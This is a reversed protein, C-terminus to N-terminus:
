VHTHFGHHAVAVGGGDDNTAGGEWDGRTALQIRAHRKSSHGQRSLGDIHTDPRGAQPSDEDLEAHGRGNVSLPKSKPAGMPGLDVMQLTPWSADDEVQLITTSTTENHECRGLEGYEIFKGRSLVEAHHPLWDRDTPGKPESGRVARESGARRVSSSARESGRTAAHPTNLSIPIPQRM